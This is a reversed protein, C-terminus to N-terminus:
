IVKELTKNEIRLAYAANLKDLKILRKDYKHVDEIRFPIRAYHFKERLEGEIQAIKKYRAKDAISAMGKIERLRGKRFDKTTDSIRGPNIHSSKALRRKYPRLNGL